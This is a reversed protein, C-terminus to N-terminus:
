HDSTRHTAPRTHGGRGRPGSAGNRAPHHSPSPTRRILRRLAPDHSGESDRASLAEPPVTRLAPGRRPDAVVVVVKRASPIEFVIGDAPPGGTSVTVLEGVAPADM